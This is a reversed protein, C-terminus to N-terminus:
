LTDGIWSKAKDKCMFGKAMQSFCVNIILRILNCPSTSLALDPTILLDSSSQTIYHYRIMFEFISHRSIELLVFTVM